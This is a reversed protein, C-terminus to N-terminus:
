EYGEGSGGYKIDAEILQEKSGIDVWGEEYIVGYVDKKQSLYKIFEGMNDPKKNEAICRELEEIDKKVLYYCATAALTSKPKEPKEEFGVIKGYFDIEVVGFKKALLDAHKLDYLGIVSALHDESKDVLKFLDFEFLNDGAIVFLDEDINRTKISYHIDGVAGLKTEETMTGDNIVEVEKEGKYAKAWEEFNKFFKNNTVVYITDIANIKELKETIHEIMPKGGIKLLPKPQNLTLPWLRKAYGAALILAKM